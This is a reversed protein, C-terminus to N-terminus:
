SDNAIFVKPKKFLELANDIERLKQELSEQKKRLVPTEIVFPLKSLQKLCEEKSSALVELTNLREEEPMRKMGPPCDPDPANRRREAEEQAAKLKRDLLYKPIRGFEEHINNDSNDDSRPPLMEQIKNKNEGIFNKTPRPARPLIEEARPVVPKVVIPEMSRARAEHLQEELQQKKVLSEKRLQIRDQEAKGKVLFSRGEVDDPNVAGYETAATTEHLRSEVNKFQRLKYLERPEESALEKAERNKFETARIQKVNDVMHNKPQIGKKQMQGRIGNAPSIFDAVAAKGYVDGRRQISM